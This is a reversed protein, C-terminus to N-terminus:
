KFWCVKDEYSGPIRKTVKKDYYGMYYIGLCKEGEKLNSLNMFM